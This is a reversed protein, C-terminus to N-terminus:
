MSLIKATELAALRPNQIIEEILTTPAVTPIVPALEVRIKERVVPIILFKSLM